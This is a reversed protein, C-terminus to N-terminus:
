RVVTLGRAAGVNYPTATSTIATKVVSSGTCVGSAFVGAKAASSITNAAGAATSGIAIGTAASIQMGYGYGAFTNARVTTGTSVGGVVLGSGNVTGTLRNGAGIAGFAFNTATTLRAGIGNNTFTSGVVRTGALNGTAAVGIGSGLITVGSITANQVANLVIAATSFNQFTIGSITSRAAAAVLQFGVPAVASGTITVGSGAFTIPAQIVPLAQTLSITTGSAAVFSTPMKLTNAQNIASVLSAGGDGGVVPIEISQGAPLTVGGPAVIRGGNELIVQGTVGALNVTSGSQLLATPTAAPGIRLNGATAITV